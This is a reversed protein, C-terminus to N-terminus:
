NDICTEVVAFHSVEDNDSLELIKVGRATRGVVSISSVKFRISHGNKTLVIVDSEPNKILEAGCLFGVKEVSPMTKIGVGGRSQLRYENLPTRKGFGKTTVTLIEGENDSLVVMGVVEDDDRLSIANVGIASRGMQRVESIPFRISMGKKTIILIEKDEENCVNAAVISDGDDFTIARIGRATANEFESLPTRKVKGKKTVLILDGHWDSFPIMTLVTENEELNLYARVPKGKSDRSSLELEHNKLVFARGHSSVFITRSHVRSACVLAIEDDETIRAGIIGKGGRKQSRYDNLSSAKIYGKETLVIVIDEDPILDEPTYDLDEEINAIQTRRDDGYRRKLDELEDHMVEYVKAESSIIEKVLEIKKILESYESKLKEIELGTLRGLRMDLIAKAQDETVTLINVLNKIAEENSKSNRIIDVVSGISRAAKMLGELVHARKSYIKLEYEARRRIVTFRHQVFARVLQLLNMLKPRNNDIVLMQVNFSTQLSTHKYLNNLVLKYNGSKPIEIVIRLGKKDSEDRVNKIQIKPNKEAYRVIEEILVAKSVGYPIESIVIQDHKKGEEFHIKSRVIIKGRGTSYIERLNGANAVIGGTPFDPGKIHVLIDDVSCNPNKIFFQIANVVEVLNHPPINTAMGVAIGSAGNLLLNPVKSPLVKPEKLTGDFNNEMEVTEKDIDELMEEAIKSLKAETYRMAAPPDRDISGFNGQGMVLPYRMTFPQALRVLADYVAMDGHPHYKGLVEGVIRACKKSQANHTLGLEHMVYLIRRQVPKLGDRVDPIARGIIVSMSYNMYQQVLEDEINKTLIESM